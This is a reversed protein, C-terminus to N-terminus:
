EGFYYMMEDFDLTWSGYQRLFNHSILGDQIFGAPNWYADPTLVGYEGVIDNQVLSGLGLEAIDFLGTEYDNGGLGGVSDEDVSTEPIPIGAYNLTQLPATFAAGDDSALGSDVFYTLHEQGNLKGQIMMMHTLAMTFPLETVTQGELAAKLAQKGSETRPRLILEENEYDITSLFQKLMGTTIIGGLSYDGEYIESWRQTPTTMIPINTITVDGIKLSAALGMGLEM